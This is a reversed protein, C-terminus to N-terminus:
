PKSADDLQVVVVTVVAEMLAQCTAETLQKPESGPATVTAHYGGGRRGIEVQLTLEADDRWPSYGLRASVEDAFGDRSMCTSGNMQYRLRADARPRPSSPPSPRRARLVIGNVYQVRDDAHGVRQVEVVVTTTQTVAALRRLDDEIDQEPPATATWYGIEFRGIAEYPADPEITVVGDELSVGPPLSANYVDIALHPAPAHQADEYAAAIKSQAGLGSTGYSSWQNIRSYKESRSGDPNVSYYTPERVPARFIGAACGGLVACALVLPKM